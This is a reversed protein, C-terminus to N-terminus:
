VHARGIEDKSLALLKRARAIFKASAEQTM